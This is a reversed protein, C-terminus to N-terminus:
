LPESTTITLMSPDRDAETPVGILLTATEFQPGSAGIRVTDVDGVTFSPITVAVFRNGTPERYVITMSLGTTEGVFQELVSRDQKLFTLTATPDAVGGFVAPSRNSGIVPVLSLQNNVALTMAQLTEVAVGNYCVVADAAVLGLAEITEASTFYRASAPTNLDLGTFPFDCSVIGEAPQNFTVGGVQVGVFRSSSTAEPEWHELSYSTPVPTAPMILKKGRNITCGTDASMSAWAARNAVTATLTGVASLVVPIDDNDTSGDLWIVDGVRYGDALFDIGSAASLVGTGPNYSLSLGSDALPASWASRMVGPFIKDFVGVGLVGSLSGSVSRPGHRPRRRQKDPRVTPDAVPAKTLKLGNGPMTPFVFAEADNPALVGPTTEVRLITTVGSQEQFSM